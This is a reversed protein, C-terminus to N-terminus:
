KNEAKQHKEKLKDIIVADVWYIDANGNQPENYLKKLYSYSLKTLSTDRKINIRSSMFFFYKRDPSVYPSWEAGQKNNIEEGMNIPESWTDDENRFVIYYDVGGYSDERGWAPVIIYSEDPAIFANFQSIGCNIEKGLKEPETYKGNVLRSRYINDTQEGKIQRTFYLTGDKTVSPFFEAHETCVPEGLNYPESWSDGNRDMVWIDSEGETEGANKDPRDSVFYFKKGDPSICPEINMYGPVSAFSAVEPETWKGNVQKTFLITSYSFNGMNICFYIEKGNPTIAIDRNNMGTSIIGPAFLEPITDPPNQGLYPGKVVPFDSDTEELDHTQCMTFFLSLIFFSIFIKNNM